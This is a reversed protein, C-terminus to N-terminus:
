FALFINIYGAYTGHDPKHQTAGNLMRYNQQDDLGRVFEANLKMIVPVFFITSKIDPANRSIEEVKRAMFMDPAFKLGFFHPLSL